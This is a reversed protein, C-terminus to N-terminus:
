LAGTITLIPQLFEFVREGKSTGTARAEPRILQPDGQRGRREDQTLLQLEPHVPGREAAGLHRPEPLSEDRDAHLDHAGDTPDDQMERSGMRVGGRPRLERAREAGHGGLGGRDAHTKAGSTDGGVGEGLGICGGSGGVVGNLGNRRAAAM